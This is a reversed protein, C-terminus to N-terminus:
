NSNTFSVKYICGGTTMFIASYDCIFTNLSYKFRNNCMIRYNLICWDSDYCFYKSPKKVIECFWDDKDRYSRANQENYPSMNMKYGINKLYINMINIICALESTCEADEADDANVLDFITAIGGNLIDLGFLVLEILMCFIDDGNSESELMIGYINNDFFSPDKSFLTEAFIRISDNACGDKLGVSLDTANDKCSEIYQERKILKNEDPLNM